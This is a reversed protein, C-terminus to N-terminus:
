KVLIATASIGDVDYDGFILVKEKRSIADKIRNVARDMDKLLFPNHLDNLTPYLFKEISKKDKLGRQKLIDLVIPNLQEIIIPGINSM